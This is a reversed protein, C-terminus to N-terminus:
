FQPKEFSAPLDADETVTRTIFIGGLISFLISLVVTLRFFGRKWNTSKESDDAVDNTIEIFIGGFIGLLACLIAPLFLWSKWKISKM